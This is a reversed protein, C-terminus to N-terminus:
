SSPLAIVTLERNLAEAKGVTCDWQIKITYFGATLTQSYFSYSYTGWRLYHSHYVVASTPDVATSNFESPIALNSNIMARLCIWTNERATNPGLNQLEGSFMIMLQSARSLNLTVSMYPMDNWNPYQETTFNYVSSSTSNFPIAYPALMLNTVSNNGELQSVQSQLILNSANLSDVESQLGSISSNLSDIESLLSTFTDNVNYLLATKNIPDGTTGYSNALLVLDSLGIKGDSNYDLWPDYPQNASRIPIIMLMSVTFCFTIMIAIITNRRM